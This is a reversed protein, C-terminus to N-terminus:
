LTAPPARLPLIAAVAAGHAGSRGKPLSSESLSLSGGHADLVFTVIALSLGLGRSSTREFLRRELNSRAEESFGPGDDEVRVIVADDTTSVSVDVRASALKLGNGIVERLATRLLRADASLVLPSNPLTLSSVVNKRGDTFTADDLAQKVLSGLDVESLEVGLCKMELEAALSLQESLRILRKASRRAMALLEPRPNPSSSIQELVTLTVGAPSAVDHGLRRLFEACATPREPRPFSADHDEPCPISASM